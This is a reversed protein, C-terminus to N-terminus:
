IKGGSKFIIDFLFQYRHLVAIELLAGDGFESCLDLTQNKFLIKPMAQVAVCTNIKAFKRNLTMLFKNDKNISFKGDAESYPFGWGLSEFKSTTLLLDGSGYILFNDEWPSKEVSHTLVMQFNDGASCIYTFYKGTSTDRVVLLLGKMWFGLVVM